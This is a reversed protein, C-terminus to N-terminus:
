PQPDSPFFLRAPHTLRMTPSLAAGLRAEIEFLGSPRLPVEFEVAYFSDAWEFAEQLTRPIDGTSKSLFLRGGAAGAVQVLGDQYTRNLSDRGPAVHVVLLPVPFRVMATSLRSIEEQLARGEFRRSLDRRDSRNIPPNSYETRYNSVDSDTVLIVAVRVSSRRMLSSSFDALAQISELLGAKGFQRSQQVKKLLLRKDRTPDQIVSLTEQVEILGVWYEPGLKRVEDALAQKAANIPAQDEVLDFALFLFTPTGPREQRTIQLPEPGAFVSLDERGMRPQVPAGDKLVWFPVCFRIGEGAPSKEVAPGFSSLLLCLGLVAPWKASSIGGPFM